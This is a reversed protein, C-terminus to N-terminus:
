TTMLMNQSTHHLLIIIKECIFPYQKARKFVNKKKGLLSDIAKLHISGDKKSYYLNSVIISYLKNESYKNGFFMALALM